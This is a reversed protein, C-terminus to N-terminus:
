HLQHLQPEKGQSEFNACRFKPLQLLLKDGFRRGGERKEKKNEEWFIGGECKKPPSPWVLAHSRFVQTTHLCCLTTTAAAGLYNETAKKLLKCQLAVLALVNAWAM